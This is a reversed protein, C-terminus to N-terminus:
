QTELERALRLIETTPPRGAGKRRTVAQGDPLVYKALYESAKLREPYQAKSNRVLEVWFRVLLERLDEQTAEQEEPSLRRHTM